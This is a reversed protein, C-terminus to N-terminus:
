RGEVRRYDDEYRVIDDEKLYEGLQVEIVELVDSGPNELRHVVGAPVYTSEGHHIFFERDGTTVKATGRVVVWHESRHRHMQLSLRHKPRVTIRKIRFVGGDELSTFSGWPRHVTTHWDAREDGKENLIRVIEQVKEGSSRPCVLIADMTEIITMDHVDATAVLRDSIILNDTSDIGVHDGIVANQDQNKELVSYVANFNGVDSWSTELPIVAAKRTKEMIGYDISLSPVKEYAAELPLDFAEVIEKAYRRCEAIFLDSDVLFIGSNWFYGKSVFDVASDYEPKEVFQAVAFGPGVKKGPRIYGYGTHPTAPRVGFVVLYKKTLPEADHFAHLLRENMTVLQDSPFIAITSRGYERVIERIGLYIAPLTNKLAPEVIIKADVGIEGIQDKVLFYHDKNTVVYIGDPESFHLARLITMQFLSTNGIIKIFQKPFQKRSLPFLRTGSGGALILTKM